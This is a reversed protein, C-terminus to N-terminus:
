IRTEIIAVRKDLHAFQKNTEKIEQKIEAIDSVAHHLISVAGELKIIHKNAEKMLAVVLGLGTFYPVSLLVPPTNILGIDKAFFWLLLIIFCVWFVIMWNIEFKKPPNM